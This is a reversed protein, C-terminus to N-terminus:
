QLSILTNAIMDYQHYFMTVLIVITNAYQLLFDQEICFQFMNECGSLFVSDTMVM